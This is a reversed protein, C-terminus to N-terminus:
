PQDCRLMVAPKRHANAGAPVLKVTVKGRRADPPEFPQNWARRDLCLAPLGHRDFPAVLQLARERHDFKTIGMVHDHYWLLAARQDM